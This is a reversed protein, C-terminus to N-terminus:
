DQMSPSGRRLAASATGLWTHPNRDWCWGLKPQRKSIWVAPVRQNTGTRSGALSFCRNPRLTDPRVVVLAIGEAITLPTRGRARITSLASEPTVNVYTSGTDIGSLLYAFGAPLEVDDIPRYTAMEDDDIVSIGTRTGLRMAPVLANPAVAHPSLVLVFPVHDDEPVDGADGTLALSEAEARLPAVAARFAADDLGVLAPVGLEVYVEVQRDLEAAGDATPDFANASPSTASLLPSLDSGATDVDVTM